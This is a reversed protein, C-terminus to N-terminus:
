HMYAWACLDASLHVMNNRSGRCVFTGNLFGQWNLFESEHAQTCGNEPDNMLTLLATRMSRCSKRANEQETVCLGPGNLTSAGIELQVRVTGPPLEYCQFTGAIMEDESPIVPDAEEQAFALPFTLLAALVILIRNM